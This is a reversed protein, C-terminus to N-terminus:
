HTDSTGVEIIQIYASGSMEENENIRLVFWNEDGPSLYLDSIGVPIKWTFERKLAYLMDDVYEFNGLQDNSFSIQLAEAPLYYSPIVHTSDSPEGNPGDTRHLNLTLDSSGLLDNEIVFTVIDAFNEVYEGNLDIINWIRTEADDNGDFKIGYDFYGPIRVIPSANQPATEDVLCKDQVFKWGSILEGIAIRTESNLQCSLLDSDAMTSEALPLFVTEDNWTFWFALYNKRENSIEIYPSTISATQTKKASATAIIEAALEEAAYEEEHSLVRRIPTPEVTKVPYCAPLSLLIIIIILYLTCKQM